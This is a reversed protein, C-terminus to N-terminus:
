EDGTTLENVIQPDFHRWDELADIVTQMQMEIQIFLTDYTLDLHEIPLAGSNESAIRDAAHRSLDIVSGFGRIGRGLTTLRRAASQAQPRVVDAAAEEVSQRGFYYSVSVGVAFLIFTWLGTETNTADERSTVHITL